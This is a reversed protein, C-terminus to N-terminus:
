LQGPAPSNDPPLQGVTAITWPGTTRFPCNDPSPPATIRPSITRPIPACNDQPCNDPPFQGLIMLKIMRSNNLWIGHLGTNKVHRCVSFRCTKPFCQTFSYIARLSCKKRKGVTNEVMKFFFRQCNDDFKFNDVEFGICNSSDLIQQKPFPYIRKQSDQTELDQLIFALIM